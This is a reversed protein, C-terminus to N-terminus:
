YVSTKSATSEWKISLHVSKEMSMRQWLADWAFTVSLSLHELGKLIVVEFHFLIFTVSQSNLMWKGRFVRANSTSIRVENPMMIIESSTDKWLRKGM